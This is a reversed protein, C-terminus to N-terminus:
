RTVKFGIDDESGERGERNANSGHEDKGNPGVSWVKFGAGEREYRFAKGAFPDQPVSPLIAPALADLTEPYSGKELRHIRLALVLRALDRAALAAVTKTACRAFSPLLDAALVCTAPVEGPATSVAARFERPDTKRAAEILRGMGRLYECEDRDVLWSSLTYFRARSLEINGLIQELKLEGSRIRQFGEIGIAREVILSKLFADSPPATAEITALLSRCAPESPECKSLVSSVETESIGDCAIRVLGVIIYADGDLGRSWRFAVDLNAVAEDARGAAADAKARLSLIRTIEKIPLLHPMETTYGQSYDVPFQCRPLRVAEAARAACEANRLLYPELLSRDLTGKADLEDVAKWFGDADDPEAVRLAFARQYLPAANAADPVRPPAADAPTVPEHAARIGQLLAEVEVASRHSLFAHLLLGATAVTAGGLLLRRGWKTVRAGLGLRRSVHSLLGFIAVFAIRISSKRSSNM